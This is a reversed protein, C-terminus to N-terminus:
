LILLLCWFERLDFGKGNGYRLFTGWAGVWDDCQINATTFFIKNLFVKSYKITREEM